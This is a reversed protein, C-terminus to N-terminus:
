AVTHCTPGRHWRMTSLLSCTIGCASSLCVHGSRTQLKGKSSCEIRDSLAFFRWVFSCSCSFRKKRLKKGGKLSHNLNCIKDRDKEKFALIHKKKQLNHKEVWVHLHPFSFIIAPTLAGATQRERGPSPSQSILTTPVFPRGMLHPPPEPNRPECRTGDNVARCLCQLM